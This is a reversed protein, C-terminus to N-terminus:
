KFIREKDNKIRERERERKVLSNKAGGVVVDVWWRWWRGGALDVAVVFLLLSFFFFVACGAVVGVVDVGVWVVVVVDM